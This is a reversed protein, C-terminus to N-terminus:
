DLQIDAGGRGRLGSKTIEDIVEQPTMEHLVQYLTLYGGMAIYSEISEPDVKGSNELVIYMQKKYFPDDPKIKEIRAKQGQLDKLVEGVKDLTVHCYYENTLSNRLLPGKSCLGMCGVGIVEVRDKLDTNVLLEEM